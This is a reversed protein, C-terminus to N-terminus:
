SLNVEHAHFSPTTLSTGESFLLSTIKNQLSVRMFNTSLIKKNTCAKM